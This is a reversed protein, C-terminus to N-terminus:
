KLYSVKVAEEFYEVTIPGGKSGSFMKILILSISDTVM